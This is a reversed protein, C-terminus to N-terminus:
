LMKGESNVTACGETANHAVGADPKAQRRGAVFVRAGETVFRKATALGIGTAGGTVVAIPGVLRRAM